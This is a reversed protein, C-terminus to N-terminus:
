HAVSEVPHLSKPILQLPPSLAKVEGKQNSQKRFICRLLNSREEESADKFAQITKTDLEFGLSSLETLLSEAEIHYVKRFEQLSFLFVDSNCVKWYLAEQELELAYSLFKLAEALQIVRVYLSIPYHWDAFFVHPEASLRTALFHRLLFRSKRRYM